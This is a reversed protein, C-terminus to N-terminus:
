PTTLPYDISQMVKILGSPDRHTPLRDSAETRRTQNQPKNTRLIEAPM